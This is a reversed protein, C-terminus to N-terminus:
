SSEFFRGNVLREEIRRENGRRQALSGLMERKVGKKSWLDAAKHVWYSAKAGTEERKRAKARNGLIEAM